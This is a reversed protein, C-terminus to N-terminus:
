RRCQRAARLILMMRSSEPPWYPVGRSRGVKSRAQLVPPFRGTADLRVGLEDGVESVMEAEGGRNGSRMSGGHPWRPVPNFCGPACLPSPWQSLGSAGSDDRRGQRMSSFEEGGRHSVPSGCSHEPKGEVTRKTHPKNVERPPPAPERPPAIPLQDGVDPSNSASSAFDGRCGGERTCHVDSWRRRYSSGQRIQAINRMMEM